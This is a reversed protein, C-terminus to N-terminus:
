PIVPSAVREEDDDVIVYVLGAGAVAAAAIVGKKLPPSLGLGGDDNTLLVSSGEPVVTVERRPSGYSASGAHVTLRIAGDGRGPEREFTANAGPDLEVEYGLDLHVFASESGAQLTSPSFITAGSSFTMGDIEVSSAIVQGLTDSAAAPVGACLALVVLLFAARPWRTKKGATKLATM